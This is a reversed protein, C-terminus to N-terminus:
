EASPVAERKEERAPSGLRQNTAKKIEAMQDASIRRETEEKFVEAWRLAADAQEKAVLLDARAQYLQRESDEEGLKEMRVVTFNAKKSQELKEQRAKTRAAGIREREQLEVEDLPESSCLSGM